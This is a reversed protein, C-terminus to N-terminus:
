KVIVLGKIGACPPKTFSQWRRAILEAASHKERVHSLVGRGVGGLKEPILQARAGDAGAAGSSCPTQWGRPGGVGM